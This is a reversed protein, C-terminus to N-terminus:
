HLMYGGKNLTVVFWPQFAWADMNVPETRYHNIYLTEVRVTMPLLQMNLGLTKPVMTGSCLVDTALVARILHTSAQVFM